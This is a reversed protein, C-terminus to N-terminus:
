EEKEPTKKDIQSYIGMLPGGASSVVEYDPQDIIDEEHPVTSVREYPPDYRRSLSAYDPEGNCAAGAVEEYNPDTVPDLSEYTDGCAPQDLDANDVHLIPLPPTLSMVSPSPPEPSTPSRGKKMVKAYMDDLTPPVQPLPSNAM